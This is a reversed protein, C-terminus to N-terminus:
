LSIEKVTGGLDRVVACVASLSRAVDGEGASLIRLHIPEPRDSLCDHLADANMGYYDPLSLMRKLALHLSAPTEYRSADLYVTQMM